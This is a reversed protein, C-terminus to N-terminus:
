ASRPSRRCSSPATRPSPCSGRPPLGRDTWARRRGSVPRGEAAVRAPARRDGPAPRADGRDHGGPARGGRALLPLRCRAPSSHELPAPQRSGGPSLVGHERLARTPESARDACAGPGLSELPKPPPPPPPPPEAAAPPPPPAPPPSPASAPAPAPPAAPPPPPATAPAPSTPAAGGGRAPGYDAPPPEAWPTPARYRRRSRYQSWGLVGVAVLAVAAGIVAVWLLTRGGSSDGTDTVTPPPPGVTETETPTTETTDTTETETTEPTTPVVVPLAISIVTSNDESEEQVTDAPDLTVTVRETEGNADEPVQAAVLVTM